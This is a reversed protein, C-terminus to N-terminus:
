LKKKCWLLLEPQKRHFYPLKPAPSQLKSFKCCTVPQSIQPSTSFQGDGLQNWGTYGYAFAHSKLICVTICYVQIYYLIYHLFMHVTPTEILALSVYILIILGLRVGPNTKVYIHSCCIRVPKLRSDFWRCLTALSCIYCQLVTPYTIPDNVTLLGHQFDDVGAQTIPSASWLRLM